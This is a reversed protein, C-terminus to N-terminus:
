NRHKRKANMRQLSTSQLVNQSCLVVVRPSLSKYSLLVAVIACHAYKPNRASELRDLHNRSETSVSSPKSQTAHKALLSGTSYPTQRASGNSSPASRSVDAPYVRRVVPFAAGRPHMKTANHRKAKHEDTDRTKYQEAHAPRM